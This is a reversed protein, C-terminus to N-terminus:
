KKNSYEPFHNFIITYRDQALANVLKNTRMLKPAALFKGDDTKVFTIGHREPGYEDNDIEVHVLVHIGDILIEGLLERKDNDGRFKNFFGKPDNKFQPIKNVIENVADMGDVFSEAYKEYTPKPDFSIVYRQRLFSDVPDDRWNPPEERIQNIDIAPKFIRYQM